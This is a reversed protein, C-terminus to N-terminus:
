LKGEYHGLDRSGRWIEAGNKKIYSGNVVTFQTSQGQVQRLFLFEADTEFGQVSYSGNLSTDFNFAVLDQANGHKIEYALMSGDVESVVQINASRFEEVRSSVLMLPQGDCYDVHQHLVSARLQAGYAPSYRYEERLLHASPVGLMVAESGSIKATIRVGDEIRVECDPAFHWFADLSAGRLASDAILFYEGRLNFVARIHDDQRGIFLDFTKGTHFVVQPRPLRSWAFPGKPEAQNKEDVTVTNHMATTRFNNRADDKGIYQYTGPDVLVAQGGVTLNVSLADAHGHGGSDAGLPGADITLVTGPASTLIYAGTNPFVQAADSYPREAMSHFKRIGEEGLLWILEETPKAKSIKFRPESYVVLGVCLPDSLHEVRNRRGDFWRGGDDDGFRAPVGGSHLAALFELMKRIIADFDKPIDLSNKEALIRAHLFMDLAYVHYYTSQEFYAGDSLVKERAHQLLTEWGVKKWRPAHEVEPFLVGIFFLALGEGLLHTNASFYTSLYKEINRAHFALSQVVDHRFKEPLEGNSLLQLVWVWSISRFALELSSTWNLGIPYPNAAQWSRWQSQLEDLYKKNKTHLYARALISLHQHRNLEWTVKADGVEAFDLYKISPWPKLPATVGNVADTHWRIDAAYDLERYGLLDFKHECIRDAYAILEATEEPLRAAIAAVRGAVESPHFFFVSEVQRGSILIEFPRGFRYRWVDTRKAIEQDARTLLERSSMKTLRGLKNRLSM